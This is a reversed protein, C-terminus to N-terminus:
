RIRAARARAGSAGQCARVPDAWAPGPAGALVAPAARGTRNMANALLLKSEHKLRSATKQLITRHSGNWDSRFHEADQGKWAPTNNIQGSLQTSQQLLLDATKSFQRALTRLQDVDAGWLNGSM